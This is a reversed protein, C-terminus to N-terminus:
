VICMKNCLMVNWPGWVILILYQLLHKNINVMHEHKSVVEMCEDM